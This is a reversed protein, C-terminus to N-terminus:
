VSSSPPPICHPLSFTRVISSTLSTPGRSNELVSVPNERRTEVKLWSEQKREEVLPSTVALLACGRVTTDSTQQGLPSVVTHRQCDRETWECVSQSVSQSVSQVTHSCQLECEECPARSKDAPFGATVASSTVGTCCEASAPSPPPPPLVCM